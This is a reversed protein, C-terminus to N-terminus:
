VDLVSLHNLHIDCTSVSCRPHSHLLFLHHDQLVQDLMQVHHHVQFLQYLQCNIISIMLISSNFLCCILIPVYSDSIQQVYSSISCIYVDCFCKPVHGLTSKPPLLAIPILCCCKTGQPLLSPILSLHFLFFPHISLSSTKKKNYPVPFTQM